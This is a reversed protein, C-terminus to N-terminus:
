GNIKATQLNELFTEFSRTFDEPLENAMLRQLL